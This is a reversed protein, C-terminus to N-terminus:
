PVCQNTDAAKFRELLENYQDEGHDEWTEEKPAWKPADVAPAAAQSGTIFCLVWTFLVRMALRNKVPNRLLSRSTRTSSGEADAPIQPSLCLLSVLAQLSALKLTEGAAKYM